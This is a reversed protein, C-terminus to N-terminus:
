GDIVNVVPQGVDGPVSLHPAHHDVDPDVRALEGYNRLAHPPLENSLQLMNKGSAATSTDEM